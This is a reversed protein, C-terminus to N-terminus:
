YDLKFLAQLKEVTLPKEIFDAVLPHDAARKKDKPDISSSLMFIILQEKINGDMQDILDLVDWGTLIPMNIDLFLITQSKKEPNKFDNKIYSVGDNPLNFCHVDAEKGLALKLAASYILTSMADDDIILFKDKTKM